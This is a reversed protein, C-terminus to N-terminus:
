REKRFSWNPPLRKIPYGLPLWHYFEIERQSLPEILNSRTHRKAIKQKPLEKLWKTMASPALIYEGHAASKIANMYSTRSLYRKPLFGIAVWSQLGM